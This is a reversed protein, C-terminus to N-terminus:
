SQPTEQVDILRQVYEDLYRAALPWSTGCHDLDGHAKSLFYSEAYEYIMRLEPDRKIERAVNAHSDELKVGFNSFPVERDAEETASRISELLRQAAEYRPSSM